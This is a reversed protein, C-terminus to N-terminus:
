CTFFLLVFIDYKWMAMLLFSPSFRKTKLLCDLRKLPCNMPITAEAYTFGVPKAILHMWLIGLFLCAGVRFWFQGLKGSSFAKFEFIDDTRAAIVPVPVNRVTPTCQYTPKFFIGRVRVIFLYELM